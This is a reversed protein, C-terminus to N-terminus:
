QGPQVGSAQDTRDPSPNGGGSRPGSGHHRDGTAPRATAPATSGSPTTGPQGSDHRPGPRDGGPAVASHPTGSPGGAPHATRHAATATGPTSEDGGVSVPGSSAIVTGSSDLVDLVYQYTTGETAAHDDYRTQNRKTTTFVTTGSRTLRYSAFDDSHSKAWRCGISEQETAGTAAPADHDRCSLKVKAPGDGDHVTAANSLGLMKGGSGLVEVVYTYTTEPAVSTDTFSRTTASLSTLATPAATAPSTGAPSTGAPSVAPTDGTSRFLEYSAVTTDGPRSWHCVTTDSDPRGAPTAATRPRETPGPKVAPTGAPGPQSSAPKPSQNATPAPGPNTTPAPGPQNGEAEHCSLHVLPHAHDAHPSADAALPRPGPSVAAVTHAQPRTAGTWASGVGTGLLTAAAVAPVAATVYLASRRKM